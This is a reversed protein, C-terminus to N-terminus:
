LWGDRLGAPAPARNARALPFQQQSTEIKTGETVAQARSPEEPALAAGWGDYYGDPTFFHEFGNVDRLRDLHKGEVVTWSGGVALTEIAGDEHQVRIKM